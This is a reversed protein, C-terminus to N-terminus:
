AGFLSFVGRSGRSVNETVPAGGILLDAWADVAESLDSKRAGDIPTGANIATVILDYNNPIKATIQRRLSAEIERDNLGGKKSYRNLVVDINEDPYHLDTLYEISRIANHVAPLEPTIVIVLRDSQRIAACAEESLGPPCDIVVFQYNEALFALTHEIADPSTGSFAQIAAPSDLVELGSSHRLLFGQLLDVDLRDMNHVLEYFNYQHRSLGLCLAAEGLAPHQDVLLCKQQHRQVLNLALHLALSTVGTGGKAGMLTVVRAKQGGLKGHHRAQVHVLAESIQEPRFPKTLYESCGSRMAAIIRDTHSDSSAAFINVGGDCGDRLRRSIRDSEEGDDFDIVCIRHQFQELMKVVERPTIHTDVNDVLHAGPTQAALTELSERAVPDLNICLIGIRLESSRSGMITTPHSAM